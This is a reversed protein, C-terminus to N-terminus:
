GVRFLQNALAEPLPEVGLGPGAPVSMQGDAVIPGGSAIPNTHYDHFASSQFHAHEPTAAALHAIAATAIEGGWTDEITMTIGLDLCLDRTKAAGTLGGFRSIKLNIIDMAGDAAGQRIADRSDMVEDLILPRRLHPRLALCEDYRLCPQEIALSLDGVAAAIEMAEHRSWATNADAALVEGDVLAATVAHIRALDEAVGTGVKMQYQKFGRGRAELLREVMVTPEDRSIVRFLRVRDRYAGGLLTSVPVGAAKGALDWIALDLASKAYPHGKLATAMLAAVVHPKTPDAGLLAEALIPMAARAGEAFSPMYGPGLPCIEGYGTLGVDTEVVVVTSDFSPFSQTNWSYSGEALRLDVAYASVATIQM